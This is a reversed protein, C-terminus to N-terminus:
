KLTALEGVPIEKLIGNGHMANSSILLEVIELWLVIVGLPDKTDHVSFDIDATMNSGLNLFAAGELVDAVFQYRGVKVCDACLNCGVLFDYHEGHWGGDGFFVMRMRM